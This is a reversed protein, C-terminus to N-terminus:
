ASGGSSENTLWAVEKAKRRRERLRNRMCEKCNRSKGGNYWYTNIEDFPHGHICEAKSAQGDTGHRVQDLKNESATGWVLNEVRNDSAIGNLHRCHSKVDPRPGVFATLVLVHVQHTHGESAADYIRVKLHGWPQRQQKILRGPCSMSRGNTKIVIRDLSRVRGQDSVEYLGEYGVVPLWCEVTSEDM